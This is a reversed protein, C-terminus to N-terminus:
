HVKMFRSVIFLNYAINDSTSCGSHFSWLKENSSILMMICIVFINMSLAKVHKIGEAELQLLQSDPKSPSLDVLEQWM